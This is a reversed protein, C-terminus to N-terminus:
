VRGFGARIDKKQIVEIKEIELTKILFETGDNAPELKEGIIVGSIYCQGKDGVDFTIMDKFSKNLIIRPKRRALFSRSEYM